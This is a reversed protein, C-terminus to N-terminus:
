YTAGNSGGALHHRMASCPGGYRNVTYGHMWIIQKVPNTAWDPGMVAMKGPPNAQPLGYAPVAHPAHYVFGYGVRHDYTGGTERGSITRLCVGDDGPYLVTFLAYNASNPVWRSGGATKLGAPFANAQDVLDRILHERRAAPHTREYRVWAMRRLRNWSPRDRRLERKYLDPYVRKITDVKQLEPPKHHASAMSAFGGLVLSGSAIVLAHRFLRAVRM